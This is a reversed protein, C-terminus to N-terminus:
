GMGGILCVSALAAIGEERGCFGLRETTTAKVSVRSLDLGCIEAVRERMACSVPGIKPRECILTVDVNSLAFGAEGVIKVAHDLFLASDTGKWQPDSPPFHRGIDGLAAAGLIADTLAHLGVDADSHGSLGQSHPVKVGCLIVHDGECFAHVDFGQGHRIDPLALLRDAMAFDEATTLKFNAPDGKVAVVTMGNAHAIAADDLHQALTGAREAAAFADLLAPLRFGQPTQARHIGERPVDPGIRGDEGVRRMADVAPLMALAGDAAGLADVVRDIVESGVFPRAGDHILVCDIGDSGGLGDLARLGALVSDARTGGGSVPSLIKDNALTSADYLARDDPHIVTQIADVGPHDAFAALTRTLVPLGGVPRYQKPLGEGARTGRGAAVILAAIRPRKTM